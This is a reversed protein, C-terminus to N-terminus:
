YNMNLWVQRHPWDFRGMRDCRNLLWQILLAGKEHGTLSFKM